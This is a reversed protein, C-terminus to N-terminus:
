QDRWKGGLFDSFRRNESIELPYLFLSIVDFPNIIGLIRCFISHFVPFCRFLPSIWSNSLVFSKFMFMSYVRYECTRTCILFNCYTSTWFNQTIYNKFSGLFSINNHFSNRTRFASKNVWWVGFKSDYLFWGISKWLLDISQNRYSPM